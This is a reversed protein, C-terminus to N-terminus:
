RLRRRVITLGALGMGLLLLTPAPDPVHQVTDISTIVLEDGVGFTGYYGLGLQAAIHSSDDLKLSGSNITFVLRGEITGDLIHTMDIVSQRDPGAFFLSDASMFTGMEVFSSGTLDNSVVGLLTTGDYLSATHTGIPGDITVGSMDFYVMDPYFLGHDYPGRDTFTKLPQPVTFRIELASGPTVTVQGAFTPAGILAIGLALTVIRQM